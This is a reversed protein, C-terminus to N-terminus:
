GHAHVVAQFVVSFVVIAAVAVLGVVAVASRPSPGKSRDALAYSVGVVALGAIPTELLSLLTGLAFGAWPSRAKRQWIIKCWYGLGFAAGVWFIAAIILLAAIM